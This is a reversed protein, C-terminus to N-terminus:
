PIAFPNKVIYTINATKETIDGCACEFWHGDDDSHIVDYIHTHDTGTPSIKEAKQARCATCTYVREGDSDATPKVTISGNNWTHQAMESKDGCDCEYWHYNDDSSYSDAYKHKHGCSCLLILMLALILILAKAKM